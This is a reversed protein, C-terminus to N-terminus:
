MDLDVALGTEGTRSSSAKSDVFDLRLGEGLIKQTYGVVETVSHDGTMLLHIMDAARRTKANM